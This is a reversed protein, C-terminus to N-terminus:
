YGYKAPNKEFDKLFNAVQKNHRKTIKDLDKKTLKKISKKLSDLFSEWLGKDKLVQVQRENLKM